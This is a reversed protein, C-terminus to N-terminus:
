KLYTNLLLEILIILLVVAATKIIMRLLTRPKLVKQLIKSSHVIMPLYFYM